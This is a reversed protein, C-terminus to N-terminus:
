HSMELQRVQRRSRLRKRKREAELTRLEAKRERDKLSLFTVVAEKEGRVYWAEVDLAKAAFVQLAVYLTTVGCGAIGALTYPSTKAYLDATDTAKLDKAIASLIRCAKPQIIGLASVDRYSWRDTGILLLPFHDASTLHTYFTSGVMRSLDM